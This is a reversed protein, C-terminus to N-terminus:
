AVPITVDEAPESSVAFDIEIQAANTMDPQKPASIVTVPFVDMTNDAVNGDWVIVIFGTTDRPLISRVDVSDSSQYFTITPSGATISGGIQSTFRTKLDPVDVTNSAVSWGAMAAIEGTLDTGATCEAKSPATYDAMTPVFWVERTGPPYYRTSGTLATPAPQTM